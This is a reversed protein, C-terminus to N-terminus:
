RVFRQSAMVESLSNTHPSLYEIKEPKKAEQCDHNQVCDRGYPFAALFHNRFLLLRQDGSMSSDSNEVFGRIEVYSGM